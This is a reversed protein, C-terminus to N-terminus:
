LLPMPTHHNRTDDCHVLEDSETKGSGFKLDERRVKGYVSDLVLRTSNIWSPSNWNFEDMLSFLRDLSIRFAASFNIPDPIFISLNKIHLEDLQKIHQILVESHDNIKRLIPFQNYLRINHALLKEIYNKVVGCVEYPHIIHSVLRINSDSFLKIKDDTFVSPNFVLSRTHLRISEVDTKSKINEIIIKLRKFSLMMPDGGSLIVESVEKHNKLYGILEQILENFKKETSRRENLIDQRFCYQCNSLCNGTPLFLIRDKYKRIVSNHINGQM